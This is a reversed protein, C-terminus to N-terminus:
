EGEIFELGILHSNNEQISFRCGKLLEDKISTKLCFLLERKEIGSNKGLSIKVKKVERLGNERAATAIKDIINSAITWTHM